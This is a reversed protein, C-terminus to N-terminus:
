LFSLSTMMFTEIYLDDAKTHSRHYDNLVWITYTRTITQSMMTTETFRLNYIIIILLLIAIIFLNSDNFQDTHTIQPAHKQCTGVADSQKSLEEWQM